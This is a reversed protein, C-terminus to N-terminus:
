TEPTCSRTTVNFPMNPLLFLTKRLDLRRRKAM